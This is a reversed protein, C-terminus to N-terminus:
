GSGYIGQILHTPFVALKVTQDAISRGEYGQCIYALHKLEDNGSQEIMEDGLEKGEDHFRGSSAPYPLVTVAIELERLILDVWSIVPGHLSMEHFVGIKHRKGLKFLRHSGLSEPIIEPVKFRM